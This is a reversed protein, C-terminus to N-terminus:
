QTNSTVCVIWQKTFLKGCKILFTFWYFTPGMEHFWLWCGHWGWGTAVNLILPLYIGRNAGYAKISSNVKDSASCVKSEGTNGKVYIMVMPSVESIIHPTSDLMSMLFKLKHLLWIIFIPFLREFAPKETKTGGFCDNLFCNEELWTLLLFLVRRLYFFSQLPM